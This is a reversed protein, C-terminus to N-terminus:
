SVGSKQSVNISNLIGSTKSFISSRSGGGGWRVVIESFSIFTRGDLYHLSVKMVSERDLLEQNSYLREGM